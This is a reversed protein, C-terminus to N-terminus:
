ALMAVIDDLNKLVKEYYLYSEYVKPTRVYNDLENMNDLLDNATKVYDKRLAQPLTSMAAKLDQNLYSEKLRIYFIVYRWAMRELMERISHMGEATQKIRAASDEASLGPQFFHELIFSRTGWNEALALPTGHSLGLALSTALFTATFKRRDTVNQNERSSFSARILPLSFKIHHTHSSTTIKHAHLLTTTTNTFSSM